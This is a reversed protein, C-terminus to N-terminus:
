NVHFSGDSFCVAFIYLPKDIESMIIANKKFFVLTNKTDASSGYLGTCHYRVADDLRRESQPPKM